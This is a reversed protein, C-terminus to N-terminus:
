KAYNESTDNLPSKRPAGEEDPRGGGFVRGLGTRRGVTCLPGAMTRSLGLMTTSQLAGHKEM